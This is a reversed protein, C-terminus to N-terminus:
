VKHVIISRNIENIKQQIDAEIEPATAVNGELNKFCQQTIQILNNTQHYLAEM